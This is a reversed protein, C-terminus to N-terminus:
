GRSEMACDERGANLAGTLICVAVVQDVVGQHVKTSDAQDFMAALDHIDRPSRVHSPPKFNAPPKLLGHRLLQFLMPWQRGLYGNVILPRKPADIAGLPVVGVLSTM